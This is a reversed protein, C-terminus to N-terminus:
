SILSKLSKFGAAILVNLAEVDSSLNLAERVEGLMAQSRPHLAEVSLSSASTAAPRAGGAELKMALAAPKPSSVEFTASNVPLPQPSAQANVAAAQPTVRTAPTPSADFQQLAQNIQRLDQVFAAASAPSESSWTGSAEAQTGM